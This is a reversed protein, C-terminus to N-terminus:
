VEGKSSEKFLATAVTAYVSARSIDDIDKAESLLFPVYQEAAQRDGRQVLENVAYMTGLLKLPPELLNIPNLSDWLSINDVWQLAVKVDDGNDLSQELILLRTSYSNDFSLAENFDGKQLLLTVIISRIQNTIDLTKALELAQETEGAVALDAAYRHLELEKSSPDSINGIVKKIRQLTEKAAQQDGVNGEARAIHHLTGLNEDDSGLNLNSKVAALEVRAESINLLAFRQILIAQLRPNGHSLSIAQRWLISAAQNNGISKHLFALRELLTSQKTVALGPSTAMDQAEEFLATATVQDGMQSRAAAMAALGLTQCFPEDSDLMALLLRAREIEDQLALQYVIVSTLQEEDFGCDSGSIRMMFDYAGDIDGALAQAQALSIYADFKDQDEDLEQRTWDMADTLEFVADMLCQATPTQLCEEHKDQECGYLMCCAIMLLWYRSQIKAM